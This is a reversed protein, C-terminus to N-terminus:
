AYKVTINNIARANGIALGLLITFPLMQSPTFLRHETMSSWVAVWFMLALATKTSSTDLSLIFRRMSVLMMLVLILGVIGTEGLVHLFTHHAHADSYEFYEPINMMAVYEVGELNYPIDNYSGFGTGFLPSSIWLDLARPWLFLVRDFLTYSREFEAGAASEIASSEANIYNIFKGSNLWSPYTTSLIIVTFIVTAWVVKKVHKEKWWLHIIIAGVLALISGRSNSIYLTFANFGLCLLHLFSRKNIFIAISLAVFNALFGGAANHTLFLFCYCNYTDGISKLGGFQFIFYAILNMFTAFYLFLYIVKEVNFRFSLLGFLLIPMLTAFVNGDRRYFSYDLFASPSYILTGLLFYLFLLAVILVPKPLSNQNSLLLPILILLLAFSLSLPVFNTITFFFSLVILSGIVIKINNIFLSNKGTQM